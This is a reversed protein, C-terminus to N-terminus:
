ECLNFQRVSYHDIYALAMGYNIPFSPEISISMCTLTISYEGTIRAYREMTSLSYEQKTLSSGVSILYSPPKTVILCKYSLHTLTMTTVIGMSTIPISNNLTRRHKSISSDAAQPTLTMDALTVGINSLRLISSSEKCCM